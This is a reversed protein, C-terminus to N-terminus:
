QLGFVSRWENIMAKQNQPTLLQTSLVVKQGAIGPVLKPPKIGPRTVPSGVIDQFSQQGAESMAWNLFVMGAEAHPAKAPLVAVTAIAPVGSLPYVARLPAGDSLANIVAPDIVAAVQIDGRIVAQVVGASGNFFRVGNAKLRTAVDKMGLRDWYALMEQVAVSRWPPDMGIKDKWKPDFFDAWEKPADADRVRLKNSVMSSRILQVTYFMGDRKYEPAFPAAEAPTFSRLWGDKEWQLLTDDWLTMLVDNQSAGAAYETSFRQMLESSGLRTAEPTIKPFAKNFEAIWLDGLPPPTNHLINVHGQQNAADVVKAWDTPARDAPQASARAGLGLVAPMALLARRRLM